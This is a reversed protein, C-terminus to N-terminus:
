SLANKAQITTKARKWALWLGQLELTSLEEVGFLHMPRCMTMRVLCPYMSNVTQYSKLQNQTIVHMNNLRQGDRPQAGCSGWFRGILCTKTEAHLTTPCM